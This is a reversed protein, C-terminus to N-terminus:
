ERNQHEDSLILAERLMDKLKFQRVKRGPGSGSVIEEDVMTLLRINDMERALTTQSVGLQTQIQQFTYFGECLIECIKYRLSSQDIIDRVVKFLVKHTREDPLSLGYVVPLAQCLKTLQGILRTPSEAVPSFTAEGRGNMDRDVKTRMVAALNSLQIIYNMTKQDIATTMARDLLVRIFGKAGAMVPIELTEETQNQGLKIANELARQSVKQRDDATLRLEFDLFREGLFSSDSRRLVNTGCLVMTSKINRYDRKLGTRYQVSSDKDYFDRLESFIQQVNPQKLLADADKVILTRGSILPVMSVDEDSDEKRFGSFLGTFTSKLVVQDSGSVTKAITTKGSGPPGILRVWLQEGNMKISYISALVLALGQEMDPTTYWVGKFLEMLKDFTTCTPDEQVTEITTKVVVLNKPAEFQVILKELQTFAGKGWKRYADNLDFGEPLPEEGKYLSWDIYAISKPKGPCEAIFKTIVREYGERGAADNDYCFVIDKEALYKSWERNWVGAGPVATVSIPRTGIITEGAVRDWHGEAIWLTDATTEDYNFLQQPISPTALIRWVQKQAERDYIQVAKYLNSLEGEKYTPILFSANKTNYKFGLRQFPVAPLGRQEALTHSTETKNEFMEYWQRIFTLANGSKQCVKCDWLFMRHEETTFYFHGEKECFPCAMVKQKVGADEAEYGTHFEFPSLSM